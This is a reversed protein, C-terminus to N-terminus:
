HVRKRILVISLLILATALVFVTQQNWATKDQPHSSLEATADSPPEFWSMLWTWIRSLLGQNTNVAGPTAVDHESSASSLQPSEIQSVPVDQVDLAANKSNILSNSALSRLRIHLPQPQHIAPAPASPHDAEINGIKSVTEPKLHEAEQTLVALKQILENKLPEDELLKKAVEVVQFLLRCYLVILGHSSSARRVSAPLFVGSSVIEGRASSTLSLLDDAASDLDSRSILQYSNQDVPISLLPAGAPASLPSSLQVRSSHLPQPELRVQFFSLVRFFIFPLFSCFVLWCFLSSFLRCSIFTFFPLSSLYFLLFWNHNLKISNDLLLFFFLPQLQLIPSSLLLLAEHFKCESFSVSLTTTYIFLKLDSQM